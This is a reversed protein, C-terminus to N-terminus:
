AVVFLRGAGAVRDAIGARRLAHWYTVPNTALVPKGLAAEAERAVTAFPLNTGLQVIAEVDPGDLERVAERLRDLGIRGIAAPGPARLGLVRPVILGAAELAAKAAEDGAPFFPTLLAVRSLGLAALAAITADSPVTVPCDVRAAAEALLAEAAAGGGVFNEVMVGIAVHDPAAPRLTDLAAMLGDVMAARVAASDADSRVRRDPNGIRATANIVGHPRLDAMEAETTMNTAPVVVGMLLRPALTARAPLAPAEPDTM